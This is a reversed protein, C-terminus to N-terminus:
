LKFGSEIANKKCIEADPFNSPITNSVLTQLVPNARMESVTRSVVRLFDGTNVYYVIDDTTLILDALASISVTTTPMSKGPDETTYTENSWKIEGCYTKYPNTFYSIYGTGGCTKCNSNNSSRLDKDWCDPCTTEGKIKKFFYAVSGNYKKSIITFDHRIRKIVGSIHHPVNGSLSSKKTEDLLGGGSLSVVYEFDGLSRPLRKSLNFSYGVERNTYPLTMVTEIAGKSIYLMLSLDGEIIAPDVRNIVVDIISTSVKTIKAKM